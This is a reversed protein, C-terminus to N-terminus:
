RFEVSCGLCFFGVFVPEYCPLGPCEEEDFHCGNARECTYVEELDEGEGCFPCRM